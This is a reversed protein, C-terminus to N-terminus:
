SLGLRARYEGSVIFAHIMDNYDEDRNPVKSNLIGVWFNFGVTDCIEPDCTRHLYTFYAQRVFERNYSPTGRLNPALEPHAAIFEASYYFARSVDVQKRDRCADDNGCQTIQNTWFNWGDIDPERGLFDLYHQRVFFRAADVRVVQGTFIQTIFVDGTQRDRTISTPSILPSAIVAPPGAPTNFLLLRGPAGSLMNTSFELVLFQDPNSGRKVPNVDILTTLGSIFTTTSGGVLDIKRVEAKGSEFPFGTLLTVLLQDGYLRVTDPVADMVPPGPPVTTSRPIPAFTTLTASSHSTIGVVKVLNLGADNVYLLNGSRAVGFPNSGRVNAAFDPRPEAVFNPFDFVLEITLTNGHTDTLVVQGGSKLLTHHALTLTFSGMGTEVGASARISLVSSLIPSAPTPNEMESGPVPGPGTADGLGITLYLTDGSLALGSPGSQSAEGGNFNIAGPLGDLITRRTGTKRDVLSLRGANIGSGQEAVLLNGRATLVSKTPAILGSAFPTATAQGLISTSNTLVCALAVFILAAIKQSHM